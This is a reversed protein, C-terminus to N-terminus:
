LIFIRKATNKHSPSGSFGVKQRDPPVGTLAFLQSKFVLPSEELNVEVDPYSDKGHKISVRVRNAMDSLVESTRKQALM